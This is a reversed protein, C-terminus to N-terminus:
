GPFRMKVKLTGSRTCCAQAATLAALVEEQGTQLRRWSRASKVPLEPLAWARVQVAVPALEAVM